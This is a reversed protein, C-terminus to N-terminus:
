YPAHVGDRTMTLDGCSIGDATSWAPDHVSTATVTDSRGITATAGALDIETRRVTLLPTDHEDRLQLLGVLRRGEGLDSCGIGDGNGRRHGRDFRFETGQQDVVPTITCGSVAYLIAERNTDVIIQHNGDQQADILLASRQLPSASLIKAEGYGQATTIGVVTDTIWLTAPQGYVDSVDKSAAGPPPGGPGCGADAIAPPAIVVGFSAMVSALLLSLKPKM